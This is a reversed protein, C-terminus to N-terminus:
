QKLSTYTSIGSAVGGFVGAAIGLPSSSPATNTGKLPKPGKKPEVPDLFTARPTKYPVPIDPTETPRIMRNAEAGIDASFKDLAIKELNKRSQQRASILSEALVAQNRGFAGMAAGLERQASNGSVGKAQLMGEQQLLEVMMDQNEFASSMVTERMKQREANVAQEAALSNFSKQKKYIKESEAYQKLQNLYEYDKIKLDYKYRDLNMQDKLLGITEEEGRKINIQNLLYEYERLSENWDFDYKALDYKYQNEIAEQQAARQQDAAQNGAIAGFIGAGATIIGAIIAM